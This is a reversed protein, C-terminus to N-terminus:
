ALPECVADLETQLARLSEVIPLGQPCKTECQRCAVCRDARVKDPIFARWHFRLNPTAGYMGYSNWAEFNAPIDVGEPCPMCYRCATCGIKVLSDLRAAVERIAAHEEPTLPQAHDFTRLNDAVQEYTSMGSLIVKVNAHDAAWRLAFSADSAGPTVKRFPESAEPKLNGLLGGKVPEMVIVPVGRATALEYGRTGAQTLEDRYNYQIQCFDWDRDTLIREFADYGDHFSFGLFRIRGDRKLKECYDAIGLQVAREYTKANLSHLMYFDFSEMQTKELQEEFIAKAQELSHIMYMPLKTAVFFSERPYRKLLRGVARESEGDHYGYATDFYNVGSRYALDFMRATEAEDIRREPTLPLRMCGFGLLSTSVGLKEFYRTIM